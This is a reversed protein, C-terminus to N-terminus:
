DPALQAIAIILSFIFWLVVLGAVVACGVACGLGEPEQTWASMPLRSSTSTFLRATLKVGLDDAKAERPEAKAERSEAETPRPKLMTAFSISTRNYKAREASDSLVEFAAQVKIFQKEAQPDDPKADPHCKRAMRRYAEAIQELSADRRIGLIAYYDETPEASADRRHKASDAM